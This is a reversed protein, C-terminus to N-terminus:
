GYICKVRGLFSDRAPGPLLIINRSSWHLLKNLQKDKIAVKSTGSRDFYVARVRANVCLLM